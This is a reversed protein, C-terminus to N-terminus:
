KGKPRFLQPAFPNNVGATEGGDGPRSEGIVVAMREQLDGKVVETNIGDTLGIRLSLPRVFEGNTVWVRARDRQEKEGSKPAEVAGFGTARRQAKMYEGRAELAVQQPSQPQWRLAANPVLLVDKHRSVEFQLNATMYPLLKGDSNDTSVVVTYTVVQQQNTANLRIQSVQGRFQRGGFADVTFRVIQGTHINGIDAENVSAWVQLKKLDKAILFLSPASLSSVVTQGINVRRDVITGKVPSKIVCYGLNIDAQHLVAKATDVAKQAAVVAAEGGPIAVRATEYANEATDIDFDSLAKTERLDKVREWDRNTMVLKSRMALLNAEALKVNAEAQGLDARAKEAAAAYLSQDIQALVTGNEVNSGYDITRTPDKPDKGFEQILGAVQAGVDVVEEPEITGTASITALLEGKEAPVTRYHPKNEMRGYLYWGGSLGCAVLVVLYLLIKGYKKM